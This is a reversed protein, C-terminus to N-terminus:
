PLTYIAAGATAAAINPAGTAINKVYSFPVFLVDGAVLRIDPRKGKQIEGLSLEEQQLTGNQKHLLRAHGQKASRTLGGALALGQLLTMQSENNSMVFGGPRNVDGLIYIIGAKPVVVMDGPYILVQREIAERADNSVNYAIPHGPDGRREILINRDATETLGGSLALVNLVPLPTGIMYSGAAKVQGLIYVTQTAYQEVTVSVEPHNMYHSDVLRDHIALAAEAPTLREVKVSGVGIVPVEGTDTVRPHQEMEPADAVSIHLVDGAGILLSNDATTSKTPPALPLSLLISVACYILTKM